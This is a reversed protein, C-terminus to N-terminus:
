LRWSSNNVYAPINNVFDNRNAARRRYVDHLIIWMHPFKIYLITGIQPEVDISTMFNKGYAPIYVYNAAYPFSNSLVIGAFQSSNVQRRYADLRM